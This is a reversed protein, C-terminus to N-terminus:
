LDSRTRIVIETTYKYYFDKYSEKTGLEYWDTASESFICVKDRNFDAVSHFFESIGERHKIKTLNLISVGSSAEYKTDQSIMAHKVINSLLGGQACVQNQGSDHTVPVCFLLASAEQMRQTARDLLENTINFFFDSNLVLIKKIGTFNKKFNHIAGGSGLLIPEHLIKIQSSYNKRVYEKIQDACHHTNIVINTIGLAHLQTIRFDLCTKEFFPWLPKPLVKGIEGMRTGLGACLIYAAEIKM